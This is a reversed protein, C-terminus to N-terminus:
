FSKQINELFPMKEFSYIYSSKDLVGSFVSPDQIKILGMSGIPIVDLALEQQPKDKSSCALILLIFLLVLGKCINQM